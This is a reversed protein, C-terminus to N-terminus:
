DSRAPPAIKPEGPAGGNKEPATPPIGDVKSPPKGEKRPRFYRVPAGRPVAFFDAGIRAILLRPRGDDPPEKVYFEISRDKGTVVARFALESGDGGVWSVLVVQERAFDVQGALEAAAKKGLAKELEAESRFVKVLSKGHVSNPEAAGPLSERDVKLRRVSVEAPRAPKRPAAPRDPGVVPAAPDDKGAHSPPRESLGVGAAGGGVLALAVLVAGLVKLKSVFMARTVREVIAAVQEPITGAAAAWTTSHVLPGPVGAEAAAQALAVPPASALGLRTLRRALLRHATTLRGSLTGVPVGLLAAAERRGRGELDCLVVAERYKGPLRSLERDLIPRLEDWGEAPASPPEPLAIVQRERAPRAARVELAARYATGYLWNGLLERRGISGAKRALVLFTAQFADEADQAHGLVRRCVGLVMPGHRRLLEEFAGEDRASVFAELLQGDTVNEQALAARRLHRAVGDLRGTV